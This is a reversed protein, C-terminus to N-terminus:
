RIPMSSGAAGRFGGRNRPRGGSVPDASWRIGDGARRGSYVEARRGAAAPCSWHRTSCRSAFGSATRATQRTSGGCAISTSSCRDAAPPDSVPLAPRAGKGQRVVLQRRDIGELPHDLVTRYLFLLASLAQNQTSASVRRKVALHTLFAVVERAGM